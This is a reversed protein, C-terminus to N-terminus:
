RAAAKPQDVPQMNSPACVCVCMCTSNERVGMCVSVQAGLIFPSSPPPSPSPPKIEAALTWFLSSLLLPFLPPSPPPRVVGPRTVRTHTHGAAVIFAPRQYISRDMVAKYPRRQSAPHSANSQM